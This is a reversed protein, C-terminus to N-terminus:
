ITMRSRTIILFCFNLNVLESLDDTSAARSTRQELKQLSLSGSLKRTSPSSKASTSLLSCAADFYANCLLEECDPTILEILKTLYGKFIRKWPDYDRRETAVKCIFDSLYKIHFPDFASGLIDTLISIFVSEVMNIRSFSANVM